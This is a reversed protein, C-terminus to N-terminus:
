RRTSRACSSELYTWRVARRRARDALLEAGAVHMSPLMRCAPEVNADGHLQHVRDGASVEPRFGVVALEFRILHKAHLVFEDRADDRRARIVEAHQRPADAVGNAALRGALERRVFREHAAEAIVVPESGALM